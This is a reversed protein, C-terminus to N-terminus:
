PPSDYSIGGENGFMQLMGLGLVIEAGVGANDINRIECDHRAITVSEKKKMIALYCEQDRFLFYDMEAVLRWLRCKKIEVITLLVSGVKM